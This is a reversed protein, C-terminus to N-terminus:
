VLSESVYIGNVEIVHEVVAADKKIHSPALEKHRFTKLKVSLHENLIHKYSSRRTSNLVWRQTTAFNVSFGIYGGKTKCDRNITNEITKDAENKGFPNSGMQVSFQGGLFATYVTPKTTKIADHMDNLFPLLYKAYNLPDYAFTWPLVEKICSLYLEWDGVRTAYILNLTLEVLHIYSLWFQQLETGHDKMDDWFAELQDFYINYDAADLIVEFHEPCVDMKLKELDHHLNQIMPDNDNKSNVFTGILLRMFSECLVNHMYVARNYNKGALACDISGESVKLLSIM